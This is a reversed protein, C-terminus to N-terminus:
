PINFGAAHALQQPAVAVTDPLRHGEADWMVSRLSAKEDDNALYGGVEVLEELMADYVKDSIILNGDSSCGSGFDSTKSLM